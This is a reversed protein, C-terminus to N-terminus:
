RQMEAQGDRRAYAFHTSVITVLILLSSVALEPYHGQSCSQQRLMNAHQGM